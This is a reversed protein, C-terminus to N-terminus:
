QEQGGSNDTPEKILPDPLAAVRVDDAQHMVTAHM